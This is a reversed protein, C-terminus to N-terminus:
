KWYKKEAQERAQVADKLDKFRGLVLRNKDVSITSIWFDNTKCYFVGKTGSKNDKRIRQNRGQIINTTWRCNKPEYNGNTDIRDISYEKKPKSGMDNYFNAFSKSWRECIKIGRGGYNKYATNNKNNCRGKLSVWVSYEPKKSMGHMEFENELCLTKNRKIQSSHKACYGKNIGKRGCNEVKCIKIAGHEREPTLRGHIKVQEDHKECFGNRRHKNDCNNVNCIRKGQKNFTKIKRNTTLILEKKDM